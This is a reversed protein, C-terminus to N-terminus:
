MGPPLAMMLGALCMENQTGWGPYVPKQDASTDFDCTVQIQSQGTLRPREKYTYMKQWHFDWRQTKAACAMDSGAQAGIRMELAKGRGHMHPLVAILDVYPISPPLGMEAVSQKWTYKVSAQGPALSDPMPKGLSQLFADPLAFILQRDVKDAFRLRVTTSDMMGRLRPDALNYHIQVVLKDTRALPVGMGDPYAVVGQGPAWDVPSGKEDIGDGAGGFCDWGIIDPSKDDLEKMVAANTKGTRSVAAPDVVFGLVHHVIAPAGPIVDYGTIFSDAARGPDVVFCRYDDHAAIQTGLAVPMFMPTKYDVGGQLAPRAPLSLNAQAKDGEGMGSAVWNAITQKEDATLAPTDDFAGCTGDHTIYYPPMIGKDVVIGAM